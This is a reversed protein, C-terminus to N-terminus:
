YVVGGNADRWAKNVSDWKGKTAGLALDQAMKTVNNQAASAGPRPTTSKRVEELVEARMKAIDERMTKAVEESMKKYVIKDNSSEADQESPQAADGAGEIEEKKVSTAIAQIAKLVDENSKSVNAAFATFREDVSKNLEDFKQTIQEPTMTEESEESPLSSLEKKEVPKFLIEGQPMSNVNNYVSDFLENFASKTLPQGYAELEKGLAERLKDQTKVSSYSKAVISVAENLSYQNAPSYVSATELQAFGHLVETIRGDPEQTISKTKNYGGVSSGTRMGSQTEKWVEDDIEHHDFIKNLHFVGLTKTQPHEMVKYALTQGVVRNTHMDTIPGNRELLIDQQKIIDDIPIVQGTKDRAEVSAWTAYLREGAREVSAKITPIDDAELFTRIVEDTSLGNSESKAVFMITM